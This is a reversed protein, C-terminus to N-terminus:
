KHVKAKIWSFLDDLNYDGSHPRNWPLFFDVDYGNNMLKTALTIPVNFSTDRDRAGHRIFWHHATAAQADGIYNLPNYLYVNKAIDEPVVCNGSVKGFAYSTFNVSNGQADGFVKNENTAGAGIVDMADFAPPTKLMITSVVYALYKDMDIDVVINGQEKVMQRPGPGGMGAGGPGEPGRNGGPGGQPRGGQPGGEGRPKQYFTAGCEEPIVAGEDRARQMSKILWFKIYDRMNDSTIKSGDFPNTLGLSNLYQPYAESLEKSVTKQTENLGRPSDNTCSYLWEYAMDAHDLDTIPCYAICAYIDDRAPAAGMERLATEYDPHNGTAGLLSSMAGGASTGDSFILEADGPILADNYRLYRVAAKLDLLAKPARGSYLTETSAKKGTGITVDVTSNAGRTGPICVVYGERLARGSADTAQPGRPAAAMYGGVNNRLLIPTGKSSNVACEPVYINLSQYAADEVNTVYVLGEYARYKISAGDMYTMTETTYTSPDFVLDQASLLAPLLCMAALITCIKKMHLIM